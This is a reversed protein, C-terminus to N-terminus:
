SDYTPLHQPCILTVCKMLNRNSIRLQPLYINEFNSSHTLENDDTCNQQISHVITLCRPHSYMYFPLIPSLQLHYLLFILGIYFADQEDMIDYDFSYLWYTDQQSHELLWIASQIAKINNNKKHSSSRRVFSVSKKFLNLHM